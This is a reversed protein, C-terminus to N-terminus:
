LDAPITVGLKNAANTNIELVPNQMYEIPMDAPNSEGKLIKVAQTATLKGLEYYDIGYTALGGANLMAAEGCIVPINAPGTVGIVNAMGASVMNDTPVYIVDVKGVLSQVVQQLDNPTTVTADVYSLGLENAKAKAIDIQFKSNQESSSYLFGVNKANPILKKLLEMQEKVPTLDSTGTVNGGPMKNDAVLKSDAPDTVATILIPIDKTLNAVAQAAPTAIALILDVKDNIFKQSITVCNAQEGQANQYDIIVNKGDEYGAEKLGDVFGKNAQDLAYHEVLQLIGIKKVESNLLSINENDKKSSCSAIFLIVIFLAIFLKKM